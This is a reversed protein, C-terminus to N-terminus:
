LSEVFNKAEVLDCQDTYNVSAATLWRFVKIAQIIGLKLKIEKIIVIDNPHINYTHEKRPTVTIINIPM